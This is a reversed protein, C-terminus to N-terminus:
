GLESSPHSRFFDEGQSTCRVGADTMDGLLNLWQYPTLKRLNAIQYGPLRYGEVHKCWSWLAPLLAQCAATLEPGDYGPYNCSVQLREILDVIVGERGAGKRHNRTRPGVSFYRRIEATAVATGTTSM